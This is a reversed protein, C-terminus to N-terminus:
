YRLRTAAIAIHIPPENRTASHVIVIMCACSQSPTILQKAIMLPSVRTQLRYHTRTRKIKVKMKKKKITARKQKRTPVRKKKPGAKPKNKGKAGGSGIELKNMKSDREFMTSLVGTDQMSGYLLAEDEEEDTDEREISIDSDRKKLSRLNPVSAVVGAGDGAATGKRIQSRVSQVDDDKSTGGAGSFRGSLAKKVVREVATEVVDKMEDLLVTKLRQVLNDEAITTDGQVRAKLIADGRADAAQQGM